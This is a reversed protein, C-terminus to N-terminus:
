RLESMWAPSHTARRVGTAAGRCRDVLASRGAREAYGFAQILRVLFVERWAAITWLDYATKQDDPTTLLRAARSLLAAAL